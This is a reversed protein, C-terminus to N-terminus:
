DSTNKYLVLVSNIWTLTGCALFLWNYWQYEHNYIKVGYGYSCVVGIVLLILHWIFQRTEKNM